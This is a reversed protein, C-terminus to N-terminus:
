NKFTFHVLSCEYTCLFSDQVRLRRTFHLIQKHLLPRGMGWVKGPHGHMLHAKLCFEGGPLGPTFLLAGSARSVGRRYNWTDQRPTQMFCSRRYCGQFHLPALANRPGPAGVQAPLTGTCMSQAPGDTEQLREALGGRAGLERPDVQSPPFPSELATGIGPSAGSPLESLGM